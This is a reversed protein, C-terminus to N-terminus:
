IRCLDLGRDGHQVRDGLPGPQELGVRARSLRAHTRGAKRHYAARVGSPSLLVWHDVDGLPVKVMTCAGNLRGHTEQYSARQQADVLAQGHVPV